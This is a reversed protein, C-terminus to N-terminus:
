WELPENTIARLIMNVAVLALGTEQETIQYGFQSSAFLAIAAMVNIWLTKSKLVKTM